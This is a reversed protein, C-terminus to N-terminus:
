EPSYAAVSSPCPQHGLVEDGDDAEHEREAHDGEADEEDCHRQVELRDADDALGGRDRLRVRDVLRLDVTQALLLLVEILDVRADGPETRLDGGGALEVVDELDDAACGRCGPDGDGRDRGTLLDCERRAGTGGFPVRRGDLAPM